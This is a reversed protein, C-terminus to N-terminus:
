PTAQAVSVSWYSILMPLYYFGRATRPPQRHGERTRVPGLDDRLQLYPRFFDLLKLQATTGTGEKAGAALVIQGGDQLLPLKGMDLRQGDIGVIDVALYAGTIASLDLNENNEYDVILTGNGATAWAAKAREIETVIAARQSVFSM